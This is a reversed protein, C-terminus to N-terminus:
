FSTNRVPRSGNRAAPTEELGPEEATGDSLLRKHNRFREIISQSSIRVLYGLPADAGGVAAEWPGNQAHSLARLQSASLLGLERTVKEVVAIAEPDDPVHISTRKGTLPDESFALEDIPQARYHKFAVYVGPHVPGHMWAEFYGSVLPGKGRVLHLGHAFYLLKQLAVHTVQRGAKRQEVLILNAIARPDFPAGM